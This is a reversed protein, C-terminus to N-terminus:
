QVTAEPPREDLEDLDEDTLAADLDFTIETNGVEDGDGEPMEAAQGKLLAEVATAMTPPMGSFMGQLALKRVELRGAATAIDHDAVAAALESRVRAAETEDPRAKRNPQRAVKGDAAAKAQAGRIDPRTSHGYCKRAGDPEPGRKHTWNGCVVCAREPPVGKLPPHHPTM